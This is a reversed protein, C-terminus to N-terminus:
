RTAHTLKVQFWVLSFFRSSDSDASRVQFHDINRSLIDGLCTESFRRYVQSGWVAASVDFGSGVKGQALSHVYQALNHIIDLTQRDPSQSPSTLHLFLAGSLSTVMAASSGLGTKHVTAITTHLPAFPIPDTNQSLLM